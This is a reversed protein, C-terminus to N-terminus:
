SKPLIRKIKLIREIRESAINSEYVSTNVTKSSKQDFYSNVKNIKNEVM